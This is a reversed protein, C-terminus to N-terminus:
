PKANEEAAQGAASAQPSGNGRGTITSRDARGIRWLGYSLLPLVLVAIFVLTLANYGQAILDIIGIRAAAFIAVCLFALAVAPRALRPLSQGSDVLWGDLRENVAHLLATGTEIFTGFVVVQFLLEFWKMGLLTMLYNAPVAQEGIAPYAGMMAVYFGMAPIIAVLGALLGAGVAQRRRTQRAVVFLVAPLVALNYGSYLIGSQLWGSGVDAKTYATVIDDGFQHFALVVLLAYVFYLLFSWGALVQKITESGTFTLVSIAVMLLLTGALPPAGLNDALMEGAASGIVSLILLLLVCFALEFLVWGRGLLAQCFHRYDYARFVRAFEFGAALVLGFVAGAVLLGLLGGM